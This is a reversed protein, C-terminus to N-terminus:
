NQHMESPANKLPQKYDFTVGKVPLLKRLRRNTTGAAEGELQQKDAEAKEKWEQPWDMDASMQMGMGGFKDMAMNRVSPEPRSFLQEENDYTVVEVPVNQRPPADPPVVKPPIPPPVWPVIVDEPESADSQALATEEPILITAGAIPVLEPEVIEVVPPPPPPPPPPPLIPQREPPRETVVPAPAATANVNFNAVIIRDVKVGGETTAQIHIRSNQVVTYVHTLTLVTNPEDYKAGLLTRDAAPFANGGPNVMKVSTIPCAKENLVFWKMITAKDFVRQDNAQSFTVTLPQAAETDLKLIDDPPTKESGPCIVTVNFENTWWTYGAQEYKIFLKQSQRKKQDAYINGTRDITVWGDTYTDNDGNERKQYM